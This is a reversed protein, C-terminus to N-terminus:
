CHIRGCVATISFLFLQLLRGASSHSVLVETCYTQLGEAGAATANVVTVPWRYECGLAGVREVEQANGGVDSMAINCARDATRLPRLQWTVQLHRWQQVVLRIWDKADKIVVNRCGADVSPGGDTSGAVVIIVRNLRVSQSLMDIWAQAEGKDRRRHCSVM